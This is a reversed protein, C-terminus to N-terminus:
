NDTYTEDMNLCLIKKNEPTGTKTLEGMRTSWLQQIMGAGKEL